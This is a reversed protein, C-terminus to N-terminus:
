ALDRCPLVDFKAGLQDHALITPFTMLIVQLDKVLVQRQNGRSLRGTGGRLNGQM